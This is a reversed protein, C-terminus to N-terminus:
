DFCNFDHLLGVRQGLPCRTKSRIVAIPKRLLVSCIILLVLRGFPSYYGEYSDSRNAQSA